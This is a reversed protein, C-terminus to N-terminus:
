DKPGKEALNRLERDCAAIAEDSMPRSGRALKYALDRMSLNLEDPAVWDPKCHARVIADTDPSALLDGMAWDVSPVRRLPVTTQYTVEYTGAGLEHGGLAEYASKPAYPLEVSAVCGFPVTLEFRLVSEDVCSWAVRWDGSSDKRECVLHGLRWSPIPAVIARRFGPENAVPRLGAAYGFLWEVISGYSYHNMSNMGTGTIVGDDDLSNWREWITTAGLKVERLWGPYEENLLLDYAKSPMNAECLARTLFNTGVFGTVLKGENRALARDLAFANFDSSGFGFAICLAYATQTTVACRGNPSFYEDHIYDSVRQAMEDYRRADDSRNLVRAAEAVETASRWWYLYAIFDPDTAGTRDGKPADLALWDGLQHLGGWAHNEGDDVKQIHDVWSKMYDFHEELVSKDGSFVYSQWPIFCTADGWVACAPGELMFAPAVLPAAGEFKDAERAMDYAFKRYFPLQDALYLATPAFVQADGTWGMREDRQPCDTPADVFNSKMGWRTNSVLKNVLAHGTVLTGVEEFDSYLAVGTFDSSAFNSLGEIKAYRYGYYTFRPELVHEEGDSVYVYEQKASRLNENYFEGNQLLEGLWVHVETGVPEHVRLRFTGAFEQGMDLVLDGSPVEVVTPEFLEHATVPISIRDTLKASAVQAEGEGLLTAPVKEVKPLTDDRREGDYINSAYTNSRGTQWGRGTGIVQESGDVYTIRLEAILRWDNGYYGRDEPIFGFRGKWWGNGMYFALEPTNGSSTIADTVDYTQVQLWQDYANTGPALYENTIRVGDVSADYLGLGCAYLRASAVEGTVELRTSFVPHRSSGDGDCTIWSAQWPEDMKGTEFWATQSTAEEGANTRVSVYWEYRTRPELVLSAIQTALSDLQDWGTDAVIAENHFVVIRSAEAKTGRADKVCWSFTPKGYKFGLANKLHNVRLRHVIM